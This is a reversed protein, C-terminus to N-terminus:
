KSDISVEELKTNENSNIDENSIKNKYDEFLDKNEEIKENQEKLTQELNNNKSILDCIQEDRQNLELVYKENENKVDAYNLNNKLIEENLKKSEEFKIKYENIKNENEQKINEIEKNLNLIDNELLKNKYEENSIKNKHNEFLHNNEEIKENQEKLTQELNNNKSTLDCIQEDRENLELVYKENKKNITDNNIDNKLMDESLKNKANLNNM